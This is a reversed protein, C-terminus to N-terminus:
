SKAERSKRAAEFLLKAKKMMDPNVFPAMQTNKTGIFRAVLHRKYAALEEQIAPNLHWTNITNIGNECVHSVINLKETQTPYLAALQEYEYNLDIYKDGTKQKLLGPDDTSLTVTYGEQILSKIPHEKKWQEPYIKRDIDYTQIFQQNSTICVDLIVGRKTKEQIEPSCERVRIGHGIHRPLSIQTIHNVTDDLNACTSSSSGQEGAHPIIIGVKSIQDFVSRYLSFKYSEDRGAIGIGRVYRNLKADTLVALVEKTFEGNKYYPSHQTATRPFEIIFEIHIDKYKKDGLIKDCISVIHEFQQVVSMPPHTNEHIRFAGYQFMTYLINQNYRDEIAHKLLIEINKSFNTCLERQYENFLDFLNPYKPPSKGTFKQYLAENIMGELHIHHEAKPLNKIYTQLMGDFEKPDFQMNAPFAFTAPPTTPATVPLVTPTPAAVPPTTTPATVPPVYPTAVPPTTTPATVPPTTTPVIVPPVHPTAVPPTTTPSTVALAQSLMDKPFNITFSQATPLKNPASSYYIQKISHFIVMNKNLAYNLAATIIADLKSLIGAYFKDAHYELSQDSIVLIDINNKMAADCIEGIAHILEQEYLAANTICPASHDNCNANPCRAFILTIPFPHENPLLAPLFANNVVYRKLSHKGRHSLFLILKSPDTKFTGADVTTKLLPENVYAHPTFEVTDEGIIFNVSYGALTASGDLMGIGLKPRSGVQKSLNACFEGVYVSRPLVCLEKGYQFGQM